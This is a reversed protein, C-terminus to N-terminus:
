RRKYCFVLISLRTLCYSIPLRFVLKLSGWCALDMIAVIVAAMWDFQARHPLLTIAECVRKWAAKLVSMWLCSCAMCGTSNLSIGSSIKRSSIASNVSSKVMQTGWGCLWVWAYIKISARLPSSTTLVFGLFARPQMFFPTNWDSCEKDYFCIQM